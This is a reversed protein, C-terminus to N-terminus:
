SACQIILKFSTATLFDHDLKITENRKPGYLSINVSLITVNLQTQVQYHYAHERRLECMGAVFYLYM